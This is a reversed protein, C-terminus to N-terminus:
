PQVVQLAFASPLPATVAVNGIGIPSISIVQIDTPSAAAIARFTVTALTGPATAGVTGGTPDNIRDSITIQGNTGNTGSFSTPIGNQKLFGGESIGVVKLKNADYGIVLNSINTIAQTTSQVNLAVAVTEGVNVQTQGQWQLQAVGSGSIAGGIGIPVDGSNGVAGSNLGNPGSTLGNPDTGNPTTPRTTPATTTPPVVPTNANNNTAGGGSEPRNRLSSETGAPFSAEGASPRTINRILHPTISLVIETKATDDTTAGFLKGLIPLEGLGPLKNGSTREQNDILGALVDTEGNKLRLVTTANRTGIEYASTGSSTSVQSIISSVELSVKIGVDDDLYITPEVNLTLGIDIYNISQSVFGTATATSTINPVREGILIKAKEHNRVRIRPNTLLKADSDQLNANATASGVTVGLSNRTQHLLDHLSLTSSTNAPTTTTTTSTSTTSSSSASAGLPLPSVTLSAPWQIGLDQLRTRQVELVEVELMVEPEAVDQLAVLKEALKIADPTDRVILMNLKDDVVIDKTKVITKLTNAVSKAEANTLYFARVAMEQYDKQKAATNPYILVTNGDLVQQELQNTLLVFHVASEISSNKLFISTKQDTKVEKDFLFNLGSTRSIVEFIQKLSVDRFEISIQKKYAKALQAEAPSVSFQEELAHKLALARANAPNETLVASIKQRTTDYDKKAYAADADKLYATQRTDSDLNNLGQTAKANAPDIALARQYLKRAADNSGSAALRDAQENFSALAHERTQLLASRYDVNHPDHALAEQFKSIGDEIKGEAVLSKGDHYAMQAACGALFFVSAMMAALAAIRFHFKNFMSFSRMAATLTTEIQPPVSRM